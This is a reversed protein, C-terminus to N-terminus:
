LCEISELSQVVCVQIRYSQIVEGQATFSIFWSHKNSQLDSTLVQQHLALIFALLKYKLEADSVILCIVGTDSVM